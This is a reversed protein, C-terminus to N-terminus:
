TTKVDSNSKYRASFHKKKIIPQRGVKGKFLWVSINWVLLNM